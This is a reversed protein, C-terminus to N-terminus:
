TPNDHVRPWKDPETAYTGRYPVTFAWGHERLHGIAQRVTVKAVGYQRMLTKESPIPRNPRLEGRRIREALEAAITQHLPTKRPTRPVGFEGVFTGEGRVTHVLGRERLERAVRRATTRAIHFETELEAESPIMDGPKLAGGSIRAEIIEAVQRYVPVPGERDLM